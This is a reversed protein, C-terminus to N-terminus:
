VDAAELIAIGAALAAIDQTVQDIRARHMQAEQLADAERAKRDNCERELERKHELLSGIATQTVDSM